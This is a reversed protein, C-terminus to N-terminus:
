NEFKGNFHDKMGELRYPHDHPLWQMTGEYTCKRLETSHEIGLELGCWPCAVYGQHFFGGVMGYSPFDHISWLLMGHLQFSRGGVEKTIDYALVRTWLELLEEVLPELYVDLVDSTM